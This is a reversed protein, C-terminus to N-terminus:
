VTLHHCCPIAMCFLLVEHRLQQLCFLGRPLRVGLYRFFDTQCVKVSSLQELVLCTRAKMVGKKSLQRRSVCCGASITEGPVDPSDVCDM